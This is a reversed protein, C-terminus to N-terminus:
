CPGFLTSLSSPRHKQAGRHRMDPNVAEGVTLCCFDRSLVCSQKELHGDSFLARISTLSKDQMWVAKLHLLLNQSVLFGVLRGDTAAFGTEIKPLFPSFHGTHPGGVSMNHNLVLTLHTNFRLETQFLM